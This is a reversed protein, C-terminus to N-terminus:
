SGAGDLEELAARVRKGLAADIDEEYKSAIEAAALLNVALNRALRRSMPVDFVENDPTTVTVCVDRDDASVVFPFEGPEPPPEPTLLDALPAALTEAV